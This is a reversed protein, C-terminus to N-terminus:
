RTYPQIRNKQKGTNDFYKSIISDVTTSEMFRNKEFTRNKKRAGHKIHQKEGTGECWDCMADTKEDHGSGNCHDCVDVEFDCFEDVIEEIYKTKSSGCNIILVM